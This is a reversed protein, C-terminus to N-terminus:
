KLELLQVMKVFMPSDHYPLVCEVVAPVNYVHISSVPLTPPLNVTLPQL